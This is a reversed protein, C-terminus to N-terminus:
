LAAGAHGKGAMQRWSGGGRRPFVPSALAPPLKAGVGVERRRIAGSEARGPQACGDPKLSRRHEEDPFYIATDVDSNRHCGHLFRRVRHGLVWCPRLARMWVPATRNLRIREERAVPSQGLNDGGECFVSTTEGLAQARVGAQLLRVYWEADAAARFRTDYLLGRAVISKRFFIGATLGSFHCTWTHSLSPTVMKRLCLATGRKDVVVVDGLFLDTEPFISFSQRVKELVGPLYQEDSNLYACISVGGQDAISAICCSLQELQNLSPTVITFDM